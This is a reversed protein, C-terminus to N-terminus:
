NIHDILKGRKGEIPDMGLKPYFFLLHDFHIAM